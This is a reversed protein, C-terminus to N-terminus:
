IQMEQVKKKQRIQLLDKPLPPEVINSRVEEIVGMDRGAVGVLYGSSSKCESGKKTGLFGAQTLSPTSSSRKTGTDAGM